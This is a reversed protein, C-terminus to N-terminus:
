KSPIVLSSETGEVDSAVITVSQTLEDGVILVTTNKVSYGKLNIKKDRYYFIGSEDITWGKSKMIEVATAEITVETGEFTYSTEGEPKPSAAKEGAGSVATETKTSTTDTGGMVEALSLCEVFYGREDVVSVMGEKSSCDIQKQTSVLGMPICERSSDYQGSECTKEVPKITPTDVPTNYICEGSVYHGTNPGTGEYECAGGDPPIIKEEKTVHTPNVVCEGRIYYGTNPGMGDYECSGGDSHAAAQETFVCVGNVYHGDGSSGYDCVTGDKPQVSAVKTGQDKYVCVDNQYIGDIVQSRTFSCLEGDPHTKAQQAERMQGPAAPNGVVQLEKNQGQEVTQLQANAAQNVQDLANNTEGAQTVQKSTRGSTGNGMFDPIIIHSSDEESFVFSQALKIIGYSSFLVFIALLAWGMFKNGTEIKKPDGGRAGVIYQVLGYLFACFGMMFMLGVLAGGVVQTIANVMDKFSTLALPAAQAFATLPAGIM